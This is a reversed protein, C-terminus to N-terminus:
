QVPFIFQRSIVELELYSSADPIFNLSSKKSPDQKRWNSHKGSKLFKSIVM